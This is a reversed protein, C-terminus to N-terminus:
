PHFRQPQPEFPQQDTTPHQNSVPHFPHHIPPLFLSVEWINVTSVVPMSLLMCRYYVRKANSVKAEYLDKVDQMFAEPPSDLPVPIYQAQINGTSPKFLILCCRQGQPAAPILTPVYM